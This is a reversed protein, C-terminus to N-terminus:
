KKEQEEREVVSKYARENHPNYPHRFCHREWVKEHCMYCTDKEEHYTIVDGVTVRRPEKVPTPPVKKKWLKM